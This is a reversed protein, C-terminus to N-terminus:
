ELWVNWESLWARLRSDLHHALRELERLVTMGDDCSRATIQLLRWDNRVHAEAYYAVAPTGDAEPEYRVLIRHGRAPDVVYGLSRLQAASVPIAFTADPM